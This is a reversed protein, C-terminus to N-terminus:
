PTAPPPASSDRIVLRYALRESAPGGDRPDLLMGIAASAMERIPQYITTLAPTLMSAVQTDDFGTVSLDQPVRLGARYAVKLVGAAMDDNSAFIATPRPSLALLRTAERVGSEFDFAGSAIYAAPVILGAETMAAEFGERRLRSQPHHRPGSILAIRRHGLGILHRTMEAAASRDDMSVNGLEGMSQTPSLRVYPIGANRLMEAIQPVETLPPVLVIGALQANSELSVLQGLRPGAEEFIVNVGEANCRALAGIQIEGTYHRSPNASVVAILRSQGARLGRAFPNTRYGLRKIAHLVRDRTPPRVNPEGNLVRSVTKFSVGAERAVDIITAPRCARLAPTRAHDVSM